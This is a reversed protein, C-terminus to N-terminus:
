ERGDGPLERTLGTMSDGLMDGVDIGRGRAFSDPTMRGKGAPQVFTIRVAGVACRVLM